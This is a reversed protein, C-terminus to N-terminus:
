DVATSCGCNYESLTRFRQRINSINGCKQGQSRKEEDLVTKAASCVYQQKAHSIECSRSLCKSLMFCCQNDEIGRHGSRQGYTLTTARSLAHKESGSGTEETM